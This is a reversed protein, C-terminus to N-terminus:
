FDSADPELGGLHCVDNLLIVRTRDGESDLINLCGTDQRIRWFGDDGLGLAACILLKNVVRHSVVAVSAEQHRAAIRTLAAVARQRVEALTEGGPPRVLHPAALWRAYLDPFQAAVQDHPLGEWAGYSMDVLGDAPQPLPGPLHRATALARSLPSCYVAALPQGALRRALAEAQRIGVSSLPVDARGRFIQQRNWETQGHRILFIRAM